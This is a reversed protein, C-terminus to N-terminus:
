PRGVPHVPTADHEEEQEPGQPSDRSARPEALETATRRRAGYFWMAVFVLLGSNPLYIPGGAVWTGLSVFVGAIGMWELTSRRAVALGKRGVWNLVIAFIVPMIVIGLVGFNHYVSGWLSPPATGRSGGYVVKFIENALTSGTFASGPVVGLISELWEKGHVVPMEYIYRFGAVSAAQNSRLFRDYLPLDRGLAASSLMFLPLGVLAVIGLRGLSFRRGSALYLYTVVTVLFIVFAGRQGTGLLGFVAIMVFAFARGYQRPRRALWYSCAVVVMGPLLANKFQNVYGPYLYSSGAYSELRLTATDVDQGSLIGRLGEIFASYGVATFYAVVIGVSAVMLMKFPMGPRYVAAPEAGSPRLPPSAFNILISTLVYAAFSYGLVIEHAADARYTETDLLRLTGIVMLFQVYVFISDATFLGSKPVVTMLYCVLLAVVVALAISM